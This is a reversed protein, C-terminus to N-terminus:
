IMITMRAYGYTPVHARTSNFSLSRYVFVLMREKKRIRVDVCLCMSVVGWMLM